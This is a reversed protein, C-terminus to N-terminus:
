DAFSSKEDKKIFELFFVIFISLIIGTVFSVVLILARKPGAKNKYYAVEPKSLQTVNYFENSNALVRKEILASSLESLKSKLSIDRAEFLAQDYYEIKKENDKMDNNKLYASADELFYTVLDKAFSADFHKASITILSTKTDKSISIIKKLSLITGYILDEQEIASLKEFEIDDSANFLSYIASFGFAFRYNEVIKADNLQVHLDRSLVFNRMFSYDNLLTEYGVDASVGSSTNLNVGAIGALAALGGGVNMKSSEQPMLITKSEYENPKSLAFILALFTIVGTFIVIFKKRQLITNFLEKLDIEDEQVYNSQQVLERSM